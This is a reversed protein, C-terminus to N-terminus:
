NAKAETKEDDGGTTQMVIFVISTFLMINFFTNKTSKGRDPTFFGM